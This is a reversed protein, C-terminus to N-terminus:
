TYSFLLKKSRNDLKSFEPIEYRNDNSDRILIRDTGRLAKIDSHRSRIRFEVIGRETRVLFKLSGFKDYVNIIETIKPIMYYDKFCELIADASDKDVDKISKLLAVEHEASDLFTIYHDLDTHPFLRRPEVEEFVKGDKMTITVLYMDTRTITCNEKSLIIRDFDAMHVEMM